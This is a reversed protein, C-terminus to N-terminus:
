TKSLQYFAEKKAMTMNSAFGIVYLGNVITKFELVSVREKIVKIKLNEDIGYIKM